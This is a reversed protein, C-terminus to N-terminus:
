NLMQEVVSKAQKVIMNVGNRSQNVGNTLQGFAYMRHLTGYRPSIVQNTEPIIQIGGLPHAQVIQRNQLNIVLQDDHDLDKLHTKSGTANIVVDYIHPKENDEEFYINFKEEKEDYYVDKINKKIEILGNKIGKIMLQATRPPMPNSNAKLIHHYERLFKEQDQHSFSNWIWNMNEKVLELLSQFIGLEKQHRLDYELDEVPKGSKRHILSQVDLNFRKCEKKFLEIAEQLPVNGFRQSKIENFVQPTLFKFEIEPMDGRVSPLNGSRSMVSIPLNPHHAAVYRIVDLSALGTGIIAIRDKDNVDDLTSYTPYPTQIYGQTGKLHYPDHYSLTGIALFVSDYIKCEKMDSSTCVHYKIDTEGIKSNIFVETVEKSIINLNSYQDNYKELYSKMYHGFIFRPLYEPNDFKFENQSEYWEYFERPNDINLSMQDSPINILLEQSDNQFPVGQGLHDPNDYVDIAMDNFKNYKVLERLISVGATGAGIIAVRM